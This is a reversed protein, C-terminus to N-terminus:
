PPQVDATPRRPVSSKRKKILLSSTSATSELVSDLLIQLRRAAGANYARVYAIQGRLSAVQREVELTSKGRLAWIAARIRDRKEKPVSPGSVSNVNLGTVVQPSSAPMIRFKGTVRQRIKGRYMTLGRRSLGRGVEGILPRPDDGSMAVDDVFRGYNVGIGQAQTSVPADVPVALVHNAIATSTPAGQPLSGACTTLRTLLSAVDRGYHLERRFMRYVVKHSVSPFFAVVDVCVVCKQGLHQQANTRPSRQRVGGHVRAGLDIPELIRRLIRHQIAKLEADPVDLHRVKHGKRLALHRYRDGGDEAIARLRKLPVQLTWALHQLSVIVNM